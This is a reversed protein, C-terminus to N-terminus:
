FLLPILHKSWSFIKTASGSYRKGLQWERPSLRPDVAVQMVGGQAADVSRNPLLFRPTKFFNFVEARFEFALQETLSFGKFV